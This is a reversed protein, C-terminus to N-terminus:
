GRPLRIPTVAGTQLHAGGASGRCGAGGDRGDTGASRAAVGSRRLGASANITRGGVITTMSPCRAIAKASWGLAIACPRRAGPSRQDVIKVASRQGLAAFASRLGAVSNLAAAVWPGNPRLTAPPANTA